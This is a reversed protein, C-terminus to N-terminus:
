QWIELVPQMAQAAGILVCDVGATGALCAAIARAGHLLAEDQVKNIFVAFRAAAPAGKRGGLPHAVLTAIHRPSLPTGQSIGLLASIREPRHAVQEGLSEGLAEISVLAVVHSTQPPIVPEHEAPAKIARGRAGDAEVLVHTVGPLALLRQPLHAPVGSLKTRETGSEADRERRRGSAATITLGPATCAAVASLLSDDDGEVVVLGTPEWIATTTTSIVCAGQGALEAALRQILTTKGGAGVMAVLACGPLHLADCLLM